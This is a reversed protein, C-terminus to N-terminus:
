KILEKIICEGDRIALDNVGILVKTLKWLVGITSYTLTPGYCDVPSYLQFQVGTSQWGTGEISYMGAKSEAVSLIVWAWCGASYKGAQRAKDDTSPHKNM